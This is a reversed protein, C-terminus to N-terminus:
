MVEHARGVGCAATACLSPRHDASLLITRDTPSTAFGWEILVSPIGVRGYHVLCNYAHKTWDDRSAIYTPKKQMLETPARKGIAKAVDFGIRDQPLAFTMLGDFRVWPQGELEHGDPYVMANVHHLFALDAGWKRAAEARESYHITEDVRRALEQQCGFVGLTAELDTSIQLVWDRERIEGYECGHNTGGHQPDHWLRM